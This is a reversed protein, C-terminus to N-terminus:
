FNECKLMLTIKVLGTYIQQCLLKRLTVVLKVTNKKKLMQKKYNPFCVSINVSLM